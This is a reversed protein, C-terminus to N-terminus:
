TLPVYFFWPKHSTGTLGPIKKYRGNAGDAPLMPSPAETADTQAGLLRKFRDGQGPPHMM